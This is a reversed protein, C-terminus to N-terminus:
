QAQVPSVAAFAPVSTARPMEPSYRVRRGLNVLRSEFYRWSLASLGLTMVASLITVFWRVTLTPALDYRAGIWLVLSLVILHTLYVGYSITGLKSLTRNRTIAGILDRKSSTVALVLVMAYVVAFASFGYTPLFGSQWSAKDPLTMALILVAIGLAGYLARRNRDILDKIRPNRLAIAALVGMMLADARCPMLVYLAIRHDYHTLSLAVRLVPAAVAILVLCVVTWRRPIFRLLAPLVLYFQEEIALSWTVALWVPGFSNGTAMQFNQLLTSYQWFHFSGAVIPDGSAFVQRALLFSGLVAFYIPFIRCFRRVYFAKFYNPSDRNDLLIGGLLFGSLVFFLDVGSWGYQFPKLLGAFPSGAQGIPSLVLYHYILVIAIALGRIGDLQPIHVTSSIAEPNRGKTM